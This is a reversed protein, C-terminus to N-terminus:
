DVQGGQEPGWNGISVGTPLDDEHTPHLPRFTYTGTDNINWLEILNTPNWYFRVNTTGGEAVVVPTSFNSTDDPEEGEPPVYIDGEVANAQADAQTTPGGVDLYGNGDSDAKTYYWSDTADTNEVYGKMRFKARCTMHYSRYTGAPLSVGSIFTNFNGGTQCIDADVGESNEIVTVEDGTQNEGTYFKLLSIYYVLVQPTNIYFHGDSAEYCMGHPSFYSLLSFAVVVVCIIRRM